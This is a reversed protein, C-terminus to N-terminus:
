IFNGYKENGTIPFYFIILDPRKLIEFPSAERAKAEAEKSTFLFIYM